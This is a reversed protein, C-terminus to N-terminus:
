YYNIYLQYSRTIGKDFFGNRIYFRQARENNIATDTHLYRYGKAKCFDIIHNLFETGIRKERAKDDIGIWLLYVIDKEKYDTLRDIYKIESFGKLLDNLEEIDTYHHPIDEEGERSGVFTNSEIEEGIGFSDDEISLIDFLFFGKEKLVRHIESISKKIQELCQHHLVSTCIVVDFYGDEFPLNNIDAKELNINDISEKEIYEKLWELAQVSIDVSTVQFDNEALYVISGMDVALTWYKKIDKKRLYNLQTLFFLRLVLIGNKM